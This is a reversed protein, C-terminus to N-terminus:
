VYRLVDKETLIPITIEVTTFRKEESWVNLGYPAGFISEIRQQVNRLGIGIYRGEQKDALLTKLRSASIGIGNDQVRLVLRHESRYIKLGIMGRGPLPSIGHLLANEVIPQLLMKPIMWEEAGAELSYHVDFKDNYRYHQINIYSKLYEMEERISIFSRDDMQGHMLTSLSEAVLKINDAGQLMSLFKITNLTNHLFHPNIQAQLARIEAKSRKRETAQVEAILKQIRITMANFQKYIQGIEDNSQIRIKMDVNDKGIGRLARQLRLLNRTMFHTVAVILVVAAACFLVSIILMRDRTSSSNALLERKPMLIMTTWKTFTSNHYVVFMDEGSMNVYYSGSSERTLPAMLRKLQDSTLQLESENLVLQRTDNNVIVVSGSNLKNTSFQAKVVNIDIDAIVFGAALGEHLIPRVISIISDKGPNSSSPHKTNYHPPVVVAESGSQQLRQFWTHQKLLEFPTVIGYDITHGQLDSVTLGKLGHKFVALNVMHAQIEREIAILKEKDTTEYAAVYTAILSDMYDGTNVALSAVIKDIDRLTTELNDNSVSIMSAIFKSAEKEADSTSSSYWIYVTVSLFLIFLLMIAAALKVKISVYRFPILSKM